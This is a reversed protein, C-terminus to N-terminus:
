LLIIVFNSVRRVMVVLVAEAVLEGPLQSTVTYGFFQNDIGCEFLVYALFSVLHSLRIAPVVVLYAHAIRRMGIM